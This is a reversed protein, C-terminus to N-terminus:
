ALFAEKIGIEQCRQLIAHHAEVTKKTDPDRQKEVFQHLLIDMEETLLEPHSEVIRRSEAWTEAQVFAVFIEWLQKPDYQNTKRRKFRGFFSM